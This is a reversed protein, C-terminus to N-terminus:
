FHVYSLVVDGEIELTNVHPGAPVRHKFDFLPQGNAFAKFRDNGCRISLDFYLGRLFPSTRSLEREEEGWCNNLFSNRVVANAQDVRPNVHLVVDGAPGVRLNISFREANHPVFGKIIVTKKPIMGGPITAIFPVSPYLTPPQGMVPLDCGPCGPYVPGGPPCAGVGGLVSASLLELDGAVNLAKVNEPPLRHPFEQYFSGNVLIRYGKPTVSIIMEFARGRHLPPLDRSLEEEWSGGRRSNFVSVGAGFRPNVHLAIDAEELTSMALNVRFWDAQARVVGQVSVAMGPWLGGPVPAVYPLPPNYCAQHGPPPLFAM